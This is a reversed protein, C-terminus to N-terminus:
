SKFRLSSIEAERWIWSRREVKLYAYRVEHLFIKPETLNGDQKHRTREWGSKQVCYTAVVNMPLKEDMVQIQLRLHCALIGIKQTVWRGSADTFLLWFVDM